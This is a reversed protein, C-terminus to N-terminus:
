KSILHDSFTRSKYFLPLFINYFPKEISILKMLLGAIRHKSFIHINIGNTSYKLDLKSAIIELSRRTYLSIHQGGNESFYWWDKQPNGDHTMTSFLFVKPSYKQIIGKIEKIPSNLHELLEFATVMEYKTGKIDEFGRAFINDAYKDDWYCNLGIDRLMRTMIGYGGAYDLVKSKKNCFLLFIMASIRSLTLNRDIIGTDADIIASL